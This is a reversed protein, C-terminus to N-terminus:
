LPITPLLATLAYSAAHRLIGSLLRRAVSLILAEEGLLRATSRAVRVPFLIHCNPVLHLPGERKRLGLGVRFYDLGASWVSGLATARRKQWSNLPRTIIAGKRSSFHPHMSGSWHLVLEPFTSLMRPTSSGRKDDRTTPSLLVLHISCYLVSFSPEPHGPIVSTEYLGDGPVPLHYTASQGILVGPLPSLLPSGIWCDTWDCQHAKRPLLIVSLPAPPHCASISLLFLPLLAEWGGLAPGEAPREIAVKRLSFRPHSSMFLHQHLLPLCFLSCRKLSRVAHSFSILSHSSIPLHRTTSPTPSFIRYPLAPPPTVPSPLAWYCALGLGAPLHCTHSRLSVFTPVTLFPIRVPPSLTSYM